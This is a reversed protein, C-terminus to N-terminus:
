FRGLGMRGMAGLRTREPNYMTPMPNFSMPKGTPDVGVGPTKPSRIIPGGLADPRDEAPGGMTDIAKTLDERDDRAKNAYDENKESATASKIMAIMSSIGALAAGVAPPM